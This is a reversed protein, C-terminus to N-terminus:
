TVEGRTALVNVAADELRMEVREGSEMVVELAIAAATGAVKLVTTAGPLLTGSVVTDVDNPSGPGPPVAAGGYVEFGDVYAMTRQSDGSDTVVQLRLTHTGTGSADLHVREGFTLDKRGSRDPHAPDSPARYLDIRVPNGGDISALLAGGRPGKAVVVDVGDGDFGLQMRGDSGVERCLTGAGARSDELTHWGGSTVVKPDACDVPTGAIRGAALTADFPPTADVTRGSDVVLTATPSTEAPQATAFATVSRLVSGVDVGLDAKRAKLTLFGGGLTGTVHVTPDAVYRVGVIAGSGNQTGDNGDLRGGFFRAGGAADVDMDVHFVDDDTAFSVVYQLRAADNDTAFTANYAALDRTMATVTAERLPVRVVVDDGQVFASAGLLDLSPLQAGGGSNPWAADGSADARSGAPRAPSVDRRGARRSPGQAVKPSPAFPGNKAADTLTPAALRNNNDMFVVGARGSEDVGIDILDLLSRDGSSTASFGGTFISGRHTVRHSVEGTRIAVPRGAALGLADTVFAVYTRWHATAVCNDSVSPVTAAGCDSTGMYAIAIRGADGGAVVTFVTSQLEPKSIVVPTSWYTGPRGGQSPDNRPDDIPSVSLTALGTAASTWTAYANGHNDLQLWPMLVPVQDSVANTQWATRDMFQEAKATAVKVGSASNYFAQYIWGRGPGDTADFRVPGSQSVLPVQGVVPQPLPVGDSDIGQVYQGVLTVPGGHYTLFAEISRGGVTLPYGDTTTLWQRDTVLAANTVAFQRAPPFSDGHDLSSALGENALVEQDAFFLNGNALNVAEETDGGGGTLCNPRNRNACTPDFLLRFSDGGDLSRSLQGTQSRSSLPWDVYLRNPDLRGPQSAATRREITLQPEAGLYHASVVTSPAFAVPAPDFTVTPTTDAPTEVFRFGSPTSAADYAVTLGTGTDTFDPSVQILLESAATGSVPARLTYLTPAATLNDLSVTARGILHQPQDREDVYDPDAWVSVTATGGVVTTEANPSALYLSLVLTGDITGSFPGAWYLALPNGAFDANAGTASQVVPTDGSPAVTDFTATGHATGDTLVAAKNAQDDPSGHFYYTASPLAIAAATAGGSPAPGILLVATAAALAAAVGTRRRTM